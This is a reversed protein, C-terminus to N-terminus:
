EAKYMMTMYPLGGLIGRMRCLDNYTILEGTVSSMLEDCGNERMVNMIDKILSDCEEFVKDEDNSTLISYVSKIVTM